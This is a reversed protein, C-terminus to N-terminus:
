EADSNTDADNDDVPGTESESDAAPSDDEGLGLAESLSAVARISKVAGRLDKASVAVAVAYGGSQFGTAIVARVHGELGKLRRGSDIEFLLERAMQLAPAPIEKQVVAVEMRRAVLQATLRKATMKM